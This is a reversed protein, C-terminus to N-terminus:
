RSAGQRACAAVFCDRFVAGRHTYDRFQDFSACAPSLVIHEGAEASSAAERCAQELTGADYLAIGSNLFASRITPADQGILYVRKVRGRAAEVLPDYPAGKGTGGLILHVGREFSKIAIVSADVNTAKSDNWWTVGDHVGIRELRHAIGAYAQLGAVIAADDLGGLVALAVAAAANQRNHHGVITPNDIALTRTSGRHRVRLAAHGDRVEIEVGDRGADVDFHCAVLGPPLAPMLLTHTHPDRANLSVGGTILGFLRAKAAYYADVSAYRDLHDPTLNTVAGAHLPFWTLTELQYSSLEIVLLRPSTTTGVVLGDVVAACLPVGLNGGVFAQPDAGRAISGAMTTTTSKGNTGTIGFLRVSGLDAGDRTLVALGLELENYVPIQDIVAALAPHARPVGPSLIIADTNAFVAADFGGAKINVAETDLAHRQLGTRVVEDAGDDVITVRAGERLLLRAAAAGTRGGGVIVFNRGRRDRLADPCPPFALATM